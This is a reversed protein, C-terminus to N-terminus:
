ARQNRRRMLLECSTTCLMYWRRYCKLFHANTECLASWNKRTLIIGGISWVCEYTSGVDENFLVSEERARYQPCLYVSLIQFCPAPSSAKLQSPSLLMLVSFVAYSEVGWRVPSIQSLPGCIKWLVLFRLIRTATLIVHLFNYVSSVVTCLESMQVVHYWSKKCGQDTIVSRIHIFYCPM